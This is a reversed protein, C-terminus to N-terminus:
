SRHEKIRQIAIKLYEDETDLDIGVGLFGEDLCALMTTGSGVFPDLVVGGPPTVLRVLYRM